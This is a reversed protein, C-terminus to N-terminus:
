ARVLENCVNSCINDLADNQVGTKLTVMVKNPLSDDAQREFALQCKVRSASSSDTLLM